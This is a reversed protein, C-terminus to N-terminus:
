DYYYYWQKRQCDKRRSKRKEQKKSELIERQKKWPKKLKKNKRNKKKMKKQRSFQINKFNEEYNFYKNYYYSEDFLWEQEKRIVYPIYWQPFEVPCINKIKGDYNYYPMSMSREVGEVNVRISTDNWTFPRCVCMKTGPFIKKGKLDYMSRLAMLTDGEVGLTLPGFIKEESELLYREERRLYLTCWCPIERKENQVTIYVRNEIIDKVFVRTGKPLTAVLESHKYYGSRVRIDSTTRAYREIEPQCPSYPIPKQQLLKDEIYSDVIYDQPEFLKRKYYIKNTRFKRWNKKARGRTQDRKKGVRIAKRMEKSKVAMHRKNKITLIQFDAKPIHVHQHHNNLFENEYISVNESDQADFIAKAKVQNKKMELLYRNEAELLITCWGIIQGPACIFARNKEFGLVFVFTENEINAVVQTEKSWGERVVVKSTTVAYGRQLSHEKLMVREKEENADHPAM